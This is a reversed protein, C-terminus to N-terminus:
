ETGERGVLRMQQQDLEYKDLMGMATLGLQSALQLAAEPHITISASGSGSSLMLAIRDGFELVNITSQQGRDKWTTQMNM